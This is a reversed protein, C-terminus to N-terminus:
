KLVWYNKDIQEAFNKADNENDFVGIAVRIRPSDPHVILKARYKELKQLKIHRLADEEKMFSGAIVYYKGKQYSLYKDNSKMPPAQAPVNNKDEKVVSTDKKAQDLANIENKLEDILSNIYATDETEIDETTVPIENKAFIDQYFKYLTDKLCLAGLTALALLITFIFWFRDRKKKKKSKGAVARKDVLPEETIQAKEESIKSSIMVPELGENEINLQSNIVSQFVIKGSSDKSFTGFDDFFITKNHELGKELLSIWESIETQAEDLGIQEWQSLKKVFDFGEGEKSYEFEIMNQPPYVVDEKVQAPLNIVYFTGFGTITVTNEELLARILSLIIM